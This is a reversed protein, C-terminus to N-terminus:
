YLRGWRGALFPKSVDEVPTKFHHPLFEHLREGARCNSEEPLGARGRGNSPVEKGGGHFARGHRCRGGRPREKDGKEDRGRRIETRIDDFALLKGDQAEADLCFICKSNCAATIRVWHKIENAVREHDLTRAEGGENPM